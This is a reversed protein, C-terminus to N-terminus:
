NIIGKNLLQSIKDNNVKVRFLWKISIIMLYLFLLPMLITQFIFITILTIINKSAQAISSKLSDLQKEIDLKSKLKDYQYGMDQLIKPIFRSDEQHYDKAIKIRDKHMEELKDQTQVVVKSAEVYEVHLVSSYLLDTTYVSTIAGFRLILLLLLIKFPLIFFWRVHLSNIWIFILSTTTTIAIAIQIFIKSSLILLINQIGLSVTSALMVWSFREVMDNFPDLVEGVSFNLGIGVPTISLETGQILSIIANLGKAIGFAIMARDFAEDQLKIANEDVGFFLSLGLIFMLLLSIFIKM